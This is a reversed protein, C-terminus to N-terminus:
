HEDCFHDIQAAHERKHGYLAYVLYDDLAYEAGYWPLTGNERLTEASLQPLLGIVREYAATYEALTEAATLTRRLDVERDNFAADFPCRFARPEGEAFCALLDGLAQEYSALHAVINKISWVGCAGPREWKVKPVRGISEMVTGHGYRVIDVANM